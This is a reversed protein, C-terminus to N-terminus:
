KEWPKTRQLEEWKARGIEVLDSMDGEIVYRNGALMKLWCNEAADYPREDGFDPNKVVYSWSLIAVLYFPTGIATHWIAVEVSLGFPRKEHKCYAIWHQADQGIGLVDIRGMVAKRDAKSTDMLTKM